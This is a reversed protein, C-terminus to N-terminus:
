ISAKLYDFKESDRSFSVSDKGMKAAGSRNGNQEFNKRSQKLYTVMYANEGVCNLFLLRADEDSVNVHDYAAAIFAVRSLESTITFNKLIKDSYNKGRLVDANIKGAWIGPIEGIGTQKLMALKYATIRSEFIRQSKEDPLKKNIEDYIENAKDGLLLEPKPNERNKIMEIEYDADAVAYRISFQLLRSYIEEVDPKKQRSIRQIEKLEGILNERIKEYNKPIGELRRIMEPVSQSIDSANEIKQNWDFPKEGQFMKKARDLISGSGSTTGEPKLNRDKQVTQSSVTQDPFENKGAVYGGAAALGLLFATAYALSKKSFRSGRAAAEKAEKTNGAELEAQALLGTGSAPLRLSFWAPDKKSLEYIKHFANRGKPTGIFTAWGGRDSLAPRIVEPWARPDQDGAEDIINGHINEKDNKQALIALRLAEDPDSDVLNMSQVLLNEPSEAEIQSKAEMPSSSRNKAKAGPTQRDKIEM